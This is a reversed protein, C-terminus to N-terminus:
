GDRYRGLQAVYWRETDDVPEFSDERRAVWEILQRARTPTAFGQPAMETNTGPCVAALADHDRDYIHLSGAIHDYTGVGVGLANAITCQLQTFQFVDYPTGWHLDNSRMLTLMNLEDDRVLFQFAITCPIDRASTFLDDQPRWITMIAQRTSADGVLRDILAPIQTKVRPGYAGHFVGGDLFRAFNKSVRVMLGPDSIGGILQVAEAAAIGLNLNRNMGTVLVDHDPEHIRLHYGFIEHTPTGGQVAVEVGRNFVDRIMRPYAQRFTVAERFTM